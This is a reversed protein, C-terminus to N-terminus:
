ETWEFTKEKVPWHQETNAEDSQDGLDRFALLFKRGVRVVRGRWRWRQNQLEKM